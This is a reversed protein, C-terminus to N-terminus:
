LCIEKGMFTSWISIPSRGSLVGNLVNSLKFLELQKSFLMAAGNLLMNRLLKNITALCLIASMYSELIMGNLVAFLPM